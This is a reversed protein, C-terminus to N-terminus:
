KWWRWQEKHKRVFAVAAPQGYLTLGGPVGEANPIAVVVRGEAAASQFDAYTPGQAIFLMRTRDLHDTWKALDGHADVAAIPTLRTVYRERWPFVRVFDCPAWNFGAIVANYGRQGSRDDGYALYAHELDYDQEPFVLSNLKAMPRIVADRYGTWPLGRTGAKDAARWYARDKDTWRPDLAFNGVHDLLAGGNQVLRHPYMEPSLVVDMPLQRERIAQLLTDAVEFKDSKVGLLHFGRKHLGELEAASVIPMQFQAQYIRTADGTLAPTEPKPVRRASINEGPRGGLHALADVAYFTSYLRSQWHPRDGFGGDANHLSNLWAQTAGRERPAKALIRFCVLASWVYYGDADDGAAPNWSYAGNELRCAHLFAEARATDIRDLAALLRLSDLAHMTHAINAEEDKPALDPNRLDVFGGSPAQRRVIFEVLPQPNAPERNSYSLALLLYHLSALNYFYFRATEADQQDSVRNPMKFLDTAPGFPSVYYTPKYGQHVVEVHRLAPKLPHGLAHRIAHKHFFHYHGLGAHGTPSSIGHALIAEPKAIKKGLLQLTRVAPYNWAADTHEQDLPGFAGNPKRCHEVYAITSDTDLVVDDSGRAMVGFLSIAVTLLIRM